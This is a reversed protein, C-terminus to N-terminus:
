HDTEPEGAQPTASLLQALSAAALVAGGIVSLRILSKPLRPGLRYRGSGSSLLAVAVAFNTLPL